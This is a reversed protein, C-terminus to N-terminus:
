NECLVILMATNQECFKIHKREIARNQRVRSLSEMLRTLDKKIMRPMDSPYLKSGLGLLRAGPIVM